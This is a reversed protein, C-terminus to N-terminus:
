RNGFLFLVIVSHIVYFCKHVTDCLSTRKVVLLARRYKVKHPVCINMICAYVYKYLLVLCFTIKHKFYDNEVM